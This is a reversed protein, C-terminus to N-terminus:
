LASSARRMDRLTLFKNLKFEFDISRDSSPKFNKSMASSLYPILACNEEFLALKKRYKQRTYDTSKQNFAKLYYAVYLVASRQIDLFPYKPKLCGVATMAKVVSVSVGQELYGLTPLSTLPVPEPLPPLKSPLKQDWYTEPSRLFKDQKQKTEFIYIRERYEVAHEMNGQVLAEFRQHGDLYTVPCFGKMEVQQPFKNKVQIETVKKPLLHPEPLARPCGPPVFSDPSTLFRELHDRGCMIYYHSKYEAAHKLFAVESCDVLHHHLALCVPCYGGFEGIQCQLEKPTICLRNICGAQGSSTRELYSHIYKMSISIEKLISDWIFWKNKSGDLVISNNYQQQFHQRVNEIEQRYCSNRTTIIEVSDHMLHPKNPKKKDEVGRTLVEMIGLELEVVIMPIISLRGMLEAQKVTMPFGDLVYGQTSCVTDMLVVELCQLALEDPVVLGQHLHQKMQEALDSNERSNLVKRMVSGISVRALGYKWAFMQAVTTKGSKPPGVIAIKVPLSPSPKPQRLFKLPSLMFTKQTEKSAFFYIFQHLLLPHTTNFPWQLPQILLGDNYLKVPDWCRFASYFKYSSWLLTQALTHSIPQCKQFLSERNTLLPQTKQLLRNRVIRMKHSANISMSPINQESLFEMVNSVKNTDTEFRDEIERELREAAVEENEESEENEMDDYGEELPFERELIAEIDDEEDSEENRTGKEEIIEARRKAITEERIKKRLDHLIMLQAERRNHRERWDKLYAPLLRKRVDNVEVMMVVVVDPLLQRHLMYQVDNPNSPFGELIFGTTLYPENKWFPVIIMDLIYPPLPDGDSLYATIALEEETLPVEEINESTEVNGGAEQILLTLDETSEPSKEDTPPVRKNTKAMILMQLQERFQIHSLGLQQALWVGQTTKGSGRNGLMFIRLPPPKLLETQAVFDEPNQLFSERDERSSFYYTKERYKAAIEDTCPLLVNHNKLAVPCFHRTDGLFRKTTTDDEDGEEASDSYSAGEEDRDLEALAEMDEAEEDLDMSSLEWSVYRFPKEMQHVIETLLEEPSRDSIELVSHSVSLASQMEEWESTFRQVLLKYSKMEPGDPYGLEWKNPLVVGEAVTDLNSRRGSSGVASKQKHNLLEERLRKQVAKDISEKNLEYLRSLIQHGDTNRLCFFNEPQIGAKELANRQSLNKPFNDLVWGTVRMEDAEEMETLRKRLAEAYMETTPKIKQKAEELASVVMAKVEPHDETVPDQKGQLKMKIREIAAQTTEEKIRDLREQVVQAQIPLVLEEVDIVVADYHQALLKSLTSKGAQPPGIISVKCPPSPMPPLLYPRPNSVFKQYAEESSLLYLKDQFGVSLEAKGPIVRGEKLAVPCSCGWRSRRWRFGPAVMRSSCLIRFLDRMDEPFEEEDNQNLLVPVSVRQIAMSELRSIVISQLEEPTNNGDVELLYMPNHAMMYEELPRLMTNKYTNIRQSINAALHEPTWVMQDFTDKKPSEESAKEEEDDEVEKDETGEKEKEKEHKLFQDETYVEGTQPHQRQGSLRQILDKDACKINIIFNPPLKLNKILSIQEHIGLHQESMFPLCCLVYGYHQVTPSNLRALILHLTMDEPISKGQSLIDLLVKGEKTKNQIHTNLLETDDVLTCGWSKAIKKALTSKGVGPRGVIIFCTPKALLSAREAEDEIVNDVFCNM